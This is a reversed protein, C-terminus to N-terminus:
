IDVTINHTENRYAVVGTIKDGDVTIHEPYVYETHSIWNLPGNIAAEAVLYTALSNVADELKDQVLAEVANTLFSTPAEQFTKNIIKTIKSRMEEDDLSPVRRILTYEVGIAEIEELSYERGFTLREKTNICLAEDYGTCERRDEDPELGILKVTDHGHYNDVPGKCLWTLAEDQTLQQAQFNGQNIILKTSLVVRKM